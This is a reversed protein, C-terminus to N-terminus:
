ASLALDNVYPAAQMHFAVPGVPKAHLFQEV